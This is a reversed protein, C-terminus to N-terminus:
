TSLPTAMFAKLTAMGNKIAISSSYRRPKPMLSSKLHETQSCWRSSALPLRHPQPVWVRAMLTPSPTYPKGDLMLRGTIRQEGIWARHFEVEVPKESTVKITREENWDGSALRLQQNGKGVSARAVGDADTTLWTSAGGMGSRKKGTGDTWNVEAKTGLDVWANAVPDRQPGRTVRVKLPTGPYVKMTIEAPKASDKGLIMGTWPDSAWKLDEIGLVYGHESPIAFIFHGTEGHAPSQYIM